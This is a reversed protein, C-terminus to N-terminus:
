LLHVWEASLRCSCTFANLASVVRAATLFIDALLCLSSEWCDDFTRDLSARITNFGRLSIYM